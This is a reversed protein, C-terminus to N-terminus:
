PESDKEVILALVEDRTMTPTTARALDGRTLTVRGAIVAPDAVGRATVTYDPTHGALRASPEDFLLQAGSEAMIREIEADPLLPDILVVVAGVRLIGHFVAAFQPLDGMCLGVRDGAGIQRARLLGAIKAAEELDV